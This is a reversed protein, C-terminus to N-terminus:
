FNVKRKLATSSTASVVGVGFLGIGDLDGDM